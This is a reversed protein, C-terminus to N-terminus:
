QLYNNLHILLLLFHAKWVSCMEMFLKEVAVNSYFIIIEDNQELVGYNDVGTQYFQFDM